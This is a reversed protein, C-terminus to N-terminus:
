EMDSLDFVIDYVREKGRISRAHGKYRFLNGLQDHTGVVNYSLDIYYYGALSLPTLESPDSVGDHSSDTWLRLASWILDLSSIRGDANGGREVADFRKLKEFGNPYGGVDGFLEAGGDVRGNDNSDLWLFADDSTAATWSLRERFGDGDIDFEVGGTFDTLHYGDGATDLVIPTGCGLWGPECDAVPIPNRPPAPPGTWCAQSGPPTLPSGVTGATAEIATFYCYGVRAGASPNVLVSGFGQAPDRAIETTVEYLYGTANLTYNSCIEGQFNKLDAGGVGRAQGTTSSVHTAIAADIYLPLLCAAAADVSFSVGGGWAILVALVRLRTVVAIGSM